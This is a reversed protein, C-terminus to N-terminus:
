ARLVTLALIAFGCILSCRYILHQLPTSQM